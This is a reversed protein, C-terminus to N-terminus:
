QAKAPSARSPPVAPRDDKLRALEERVAALDRVLQAINAVYVRERREYDRLMGAYLEVLAAIANHAAAPPVTGSPPEVPPRLAALVAEKGDAGM